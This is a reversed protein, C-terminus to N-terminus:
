HFKCIPKLLLINRKFQLPILLKPKLYISIEPIFISHALFKNIDIQVPKFFIPCLLCSISQDM